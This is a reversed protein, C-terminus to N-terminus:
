ISHFMNYLIHKTGYEFYEDNVNFSRMQLFAGSDLNDYITKYYDIDVLETGVGNINFVFEEFNDIDFENLDINFSVKVM